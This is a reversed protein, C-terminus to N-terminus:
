HVRELEVDSEDPERKVPESEVPEHEPAPAASAEQRATRDAARLQAQLLRRRRDRAKERLPTSQRAGVPSADPTTECPTLAGPEVHHAVIREAAAVGLGSSAVIERLTLTGDVRSFVFFEQPTLPLAAVDVSGKALRQDRSLEVGSWELAAWAAAWPSRSSA